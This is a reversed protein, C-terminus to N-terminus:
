IRLHQCQHEDLHFTHGEESSKGRVANAWNLSTVRTMVEVLLLQRRSSSLPASWATSTTPAQRSQLTEIGPTQTADELVIERASCLASRM